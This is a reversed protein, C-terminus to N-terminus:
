REIVCGGDDQACRLIEGLVSAGPGDRRAFASADKAAPFIQLLVDKLLNRADFIM